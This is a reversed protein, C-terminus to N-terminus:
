QPPCVTMASADMPPVLPAMRRFTGIPEHRAPEPQDLGCAVAYLPPAVSGLLLAAVAETLLADWVLHVRERPGHNAAAHVCGHNVLHIVAPQLRHVDGDLNLEAGDNTELPLHFRLRAGVHGDITRFPVHEQHAALRAGPGLVNVRMNVLHPWAVILRGLTPWQVADFFWKGRCSFDHDNSFDDTRGSRNLLSYQSVTGAPETWNTVHDTHTVQSAPRSRRLDRIERRLDLFFDPTLQFVRVCRLGGRHGYGRVLGDLLQPLEM